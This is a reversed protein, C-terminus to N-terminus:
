SLPDGWPLDNVEIPSSERFVRLSLRKSLDRNNEGCYHSYICKPCGDVCSCGQLMEYSVKLARDLREYLLRSVGNGGIVSDFIYVHGSPYGVGSLDNVSGGAVVRAANIIAHEVGHFAKGKERKTFGDIQSFRVVTGKTIFDYSLAERLRIQDGAEDGSYPDKIVYGYVTERIKLEAYEAYPNNRSEIVNKEIVEFSYMPKTYEGTDEKLLTAEARMASLDINKIIYTKGSNMYIAGPHLDLLALPLTRDGIVRGEHYVKVTQGLSRVSSSKVFGETKDTTYVRDGTVRLINDRLLEKLARDWFDPVEDRALSGHELVLSALHVKGVEYNTPDATVPLPERTFFEEYKKLYYSDLPDNGLLTFVYGPKGGRGVRGARQLYRTFSPPNTAMVVADLYGIDIGLELTPTAVVGQITGDRLRREVESKDEFRIGARHVLMDVGARKAIKAVLEAMQQSDTFVLVTLGRKILQAAMNASATWRSAKGLDVLVHTVIGRRSRSGMVVEGQVGFLTPMLTEPNGITASSAIFQVDQSYKLREAIGRIHSGFVGDYIHAEDFVVKERDRIVERLRNSLSLGTHIMDPTSILIDPPNDRMRNREENSTDGDLVSVSVSKPLLKKMRGLQDKALAKTPYVVMSRRGKLSLEILPILFSETKGTGTGSIIVTNNGQTIVRLADQQFKYLRRIGLSLLRERLVDSMPIKSLEDGPEPDLFAETKVYAVKVGLSNLSNILDLSDSM